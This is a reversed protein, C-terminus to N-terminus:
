EHPDLELPTSFRSSPQEPRPLPPSTRLPEEAQPFSDALSVQSRTPREHLVEAIPPHALTRTGEQGPEGKVAEPSSRVSWQTSLIYFLIAAAGAIVMLIRGVLRAPATGDRPRREVRFRNGVRLPDQPM